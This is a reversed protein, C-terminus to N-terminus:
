FTVYKSLHPDLFHFIQLRGNGYEEYTTCRGAMVMIGILVENILNEFHISISWKTLKNYFNPNVEYRHYQDVAVDANSFDTIKGFTHSFTDWITPGRGEAKVAGEHQM